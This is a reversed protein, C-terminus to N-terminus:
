GEDDGNELAQSLNRAYANRATQVIAIENKMDAIKRDCYAINQVQAKTEDSMDDTEYEAGNITVKAM